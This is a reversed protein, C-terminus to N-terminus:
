NEFNSNIITVVIEWIGKHKRRIKNITKYLHKKVEKYTLEKIYDEINLLMNEYERLYCVLYMAENIDLEDNKYFEYMNVDQDKIWSSQDFYLRTIEYTDDEVFFNELGSIEKFMLEEMYYQLYYYLRISFRRVNLTDSLMNYIKMIDKKFSSKGNRKKRTYKKEELQQLINKGKKDVLFMTKSYDMHHEVKTYSTYEDFVSEEESSSPIDM